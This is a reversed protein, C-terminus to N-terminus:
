RGRAWTFAVGGTISRSPMLVGPIEEYGTNSLNDFRLYPQVHGASRAISTDWVPYATHGVRQVVAVQTRATVQHAIVASWSFLGSQAAYNFVYASIYGAPLTHSAHVGTYALEVQQNGPVRLHLAAEAGTFAVDGTNTAQYRATPSTKVYDISNGIRNQFGTLEV